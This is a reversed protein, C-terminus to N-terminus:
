PTCIYNVTHAGLDDTYDQAEVSWESASSAAWDTNGSQVGVKRILTHNQTGNVVGGVQWFDGPDAGDVGIMDVFTGDTQVIARPDDGNFGAVNDDVLDCVGPVAMDMDTHCIVFVDGRALMGSLATTAEPWSGGNTVAWIEFGSLDVIGDTGNYIELAKRFGGGEVYESFFISTACGLYLCSGDDVNAGADYNIAAADTCGGVGEGLTMADVYWTDADDGAYHLGIRIVQGAWAGLDVAIQEWSEASAGAYVVTWTAGDDTSVAVEHTDYFSAFASSQWFELLPLTATGLDIEPTWAWDDQAGVQYLRVAAQAGEQFTTTSIGWGDGVAANLTWCPGFGAEFDEAWPYALPECIICSGDDVTAAPDYNDATPDMCGPVDSSGEDVGIADVWWSDAFDGTYHFGVYIQQGAYATLDIAVETWTGETPSASYVQTWTAMDTSVAVEHFVYDDTFDGREWFSLAPATAGTLDLLPTIAWDDQAGSEWTRGLSQAGDYFQATSITFGSGGSNSLTWCGGVGAEFDEAYPLAEAACYICSGDELTAAADYNTATPDTCGSIVCSGDDVTATPDYNDAAPDTCGSVVCSGDDVTAAPDYNDALPNTCGLVVAVPEGVGIADVWWSDAFDGMYHFGVYIQQGAYATLDVTIEEWADEMPVGTYVQTWTAMDTSVAVEHFVYDATFDGRQQFSLSPLVAATLDLLPTIAWDDQAGSQWIRGLSSVGDYAQTTSLVFGSGVSANLTWCPDIGAEFDEAYPLAEANCYICSGDDATATPDYNAATPDMCGSIVCSGDDTTAAPDYNDAGPDTCGAIDCSGDDITAAPDYNTALPNTCGLVGEGLAVADIFWSDADDGVYHFGVQVSQGAYAALDIAILEWTSAAVGAYVVDYTVGGDTTVVVEHLDYFTPFQNQQWFTLFPNTLAALDVIPSWAFDDQAGAEYARALSSTGEYPTSTSLGFGDSVAATLTWCALGAEFGDSWPAVLGDCYVCSGDDITVTPDYNSATPDMCGEVDCTGNDLTAAPDYNTAVPNTCGLTGELVEVLDVYWSDANDGTYHFGVRVTQGAFAALDLSIREWTTAAVGDYLVTWTAGDDTSIAVEHLAYFTAFGNQQWFTVVPNTLASLDVQPSWAWDDQAGGEFNRGLAMSGEYVTASQAVFGDGAAASFVWCDTGAEFGDTFPATQPTCYICSGDPDTATPDYNVATPDTCGDVLCSGDDVTAAADYNTAAPNTCGPVGADVSVADVYWSDAFNGAYHFGVRIMSGDWASLDASMETWAAAAAGTHVVTWTAGDDTSVGVEHLQYDASFEGLEFWTLAAGTVGDLDIPPSWIWDDQSGSEWQRFISTTGEYAQVATELWGDGGASVQTWCGLGAEFGEAYPFGEVFCCSGDDSTAGADYNWASVDMCGPFDSQAEGIEVLDIRWTDANDGTYHFGVRVTEGAYAALSVTIQEWDLAAVGTYVVDWTAGGDKSVVVEHLEYFTAFTNKQWFGLQPTTLASLDVEPTWAWDDQAGIEFARQLMNAGDYADTSSMLFGNGVASSYTWCSIEGEFSDSWPATVGGCYVCSGDDNTAIPDYNAATPDTCGDFICSADDDIALPDFNAAAPDTCGAIRDDIRLTDVRWTDANNGTYHFGITIAKDAYVALDVVVRDWASPGVGSYVVDWTAGGDTSVVVEHLEYFTPFLQREWFTLTPTTLGTLDVSPSWAWDDQAGAQYTRQLHNTGEQPDTTSVVWGDGAGAQFTWCLGGDELGDSWPSTEGACFQCSGDDNNATPDYNVAGPDTCGSILCSGDDSTATPDYNAAVPDTCGAVDDGVWVLDVRWTDANDGTYHFGVRITQGAWPTLDTIVHEWDAGAAPGTHVVSWTAGDDTSIAVEFLEYFTPFLQQQWFSLTPTTLASLDVAPSWAWDDQAGGEYARQLSSAGEYAASGTVLWGDGATAALVWCSIDGEFGDEWPATEGTCYVCSGDDVTAAPDYNAAAADMCGSVVCSGDDMQAAPDYNDAAPNTCGLLADGFSVADIRWTDADNGTYHFGVQVSQGAYAALDLVVNEWTLAAVGDYLVTWTAGGDVTIAVEHLEYFSAFTNKQWFSFVPNTLGALDVVPTWAWDDQDAGAEYARQLSMSGDYADVATLLFGDGAASTFTWCPVDSELDDSWPAAEGACYICSGDDITATPDYNGATPDMCGSVVCSGDDQQAAPDYNDANPNTCGLVVEGVSVADVRWTDADDGVYHFGVRVTQGVYATLDVLIQEWTSAAVGTYVVTGTTGGDTSIAVEHLDYFGAFLNKQWFELTPSTAATLDIEPSWAWDDQAGVQYARQLSTVGDYADADTTVWGGGDPQATQFLWCLAGTEFSDAFPLGTASCYVCSGDDETATADYNAATPDMCGQVVCSGDDGTAAPDYNTAAPNTCGLAAEEISVSDILWNDAFDGEYHFAVYITEGAWEALDHVVRTWTAPAPGTGLVTWNEMDKSVLVEHLVYDNQFQGQEWFILVPAVAGTLDIPPTIAWDVQEGNEWTRALSQTGEYAASTILGWGNGQTTLTWCEDLVADEFGYSYPFAEGFCWHCSGDDVTVAPDYNAATPDMCGECANDNTADDDCVGCNDETSTGAWVGACDQVCTTNDNTADDDCVGCDDETSAGGWVDACDQVCTTNDNTADDDCVGCDDETSPGAWVGACDQVCTTDDNTPDNDCVGCNDQTWTGGWTGNCDQVCTTNDNTADDDCVGCDDETSAGGWM